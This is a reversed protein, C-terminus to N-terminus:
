KNLDVWKGRLPAKGTVQWSLSAPVEEWVKWDQMFGIEEMRAARALAPPLPEGTLQDWYGRGSDDSIAAVQAVAREGSEAAFNRLGQEEHTLRAAEEEVAPDVAVPLEVEAEEPSLSYLACGRDLESAIHRPMSEGERRRQAEIGRM